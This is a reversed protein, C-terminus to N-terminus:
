IPRGCSGCVKGSNLPGLSKTELEIFESTIFWKEDAKRIFDKVQEKGASDLNAYLRKVIDIEEQKM